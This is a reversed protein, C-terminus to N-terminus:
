TSVWMHACEGCVHTWPEVCCGMTTIWPEWIGRVPMGYLAELSRQASCSPCTPHLSFRYNLFTRFNFVDMNSACTDCLAAPWDTIQGLRATSVTRIHVNDLADDGVFALQLGCGTCRGGSHLLVRAASLTTHGFLADVTSSHYRGLTQTVAEPSSMWVEGGSPSVTFDALMNLSGLEVLGNIDSPEISAFAGDVDGDREIVGVAALVSVPDTDLVAIVADGRKVRPDTPWPRLPTSPERLRILIDRWPRSEIVHVTNITAPSGM